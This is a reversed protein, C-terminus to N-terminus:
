IEELSAAIAPCLLTVAKAKPVYITQGLGLAAEMIDNDNDQTLFVIRTDPSKQRIIKAAEIGNLRPLAIELVVVDPHLKSAEQVAEQGDSAESIIKWEPHVGLIERIRVRWGPFDDVVLIRAFIFHTMVRGVATEEATSTLWASSSSRVARAALGCHKPDSFVLAVFRKM